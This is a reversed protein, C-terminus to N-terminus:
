GGFGGFFWPNNNVESPYVMPVPIYVPKINTNPLDYLFRHEQFVSMDSPGNREVLRRDKEKVPIVVGCEWNRVNLKPQKTSRDMVLKGWASESSNGSGVYAWADWREGTTNAFPVKPRWFICKNHMLMGQRTSRCERVCEKPFTPKNWWERRACITGGNELGGNSSAVYNRTPFYLRFKDAIDDWNVNQNVGEDESDNEIHTPGLKERLGDNGMCAKYINTLFERTLSGVSSTVFDLEAGPGVSWGMEKVANALLPYGTTRAATGMHSGGISHVFALNKTRAFNTRKLKNFIGEPLGKARCFAVLERSFQTEVYEEGVRLVPLDILFVMNEMIGGEGWDFNVLNATPIAVRTHTNHFLLQLKSHMCSVQGPMPPFCVKTRPLQRFFEEKEKRDEETKGQMVLVLYTNGVNLKPLLWDLHWQFSSLVAVELSDKQLVEDITITPELIPNPDRAQGPIYTKKVIGNPFIPGNRSGIAPISIPRSPLETNFLNSSSSGATAGMTNGSSRQSKSPRGESSSSLPASRKLRELREREMGRRDLGLISSSAASPKEAAASSSTTSAVAAAPTASQEKTNTKNSPKRKKQDDDDDDSDDIVVIQDNNTNTSKPTTASSTSEMLSLRIAEKLDPDEADNSM